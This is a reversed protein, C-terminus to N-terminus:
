AAILRRRKREHARFASNVDRWTIRLLRIYAWCVGIVPYLYCTIVAFIGFALDLDFTM